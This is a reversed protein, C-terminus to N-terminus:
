SGATCNTSSGFARDGPCLVPCPQAWDAYESYFKGAAGGPYKVHFVPDLEDYSAGYSGSEIVGFEILYKEADIPDGNKKHIQLLTKLVNADYTWSKVYRCDGKSGNMATQYNSVYRKMDALSVTAPNSCSSPESAYAPIWYAKSTIDNCNRDVAVMVLGHETDNKKGFYVRFNQPTAGIFNSKMWSVPLCSVNGKFKDEESTGTSKTSVGSTTPIGKINKIFSECLILDNGCPVPNPRGTPGKGPIYTPSSCTPNESGGLDVENDGRTQSILTGSAICLLVVLLPSLINRLTYKNRKTKM